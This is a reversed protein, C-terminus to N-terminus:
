SRDTALRLGFGLLVFGTVGDLARRIRGRLFRGARAVAAAYFTLWCFTLACFLLGLGLLVVFSAAGEPAFQPLLSAFFVAMKPNGLNSIAGQGLARRAGLRPSSTVSQQKDGRPEDQRAFAALLSRVGLYVLYAAGALELARFVPESASLVAVIGASAALTWVAQGTAVGGATAIGARRGGALTNRITLATDQGPTCIVVASLAVFAAVEDIV